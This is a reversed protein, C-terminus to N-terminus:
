LNVRGPKAPEPIVQLLTQTPPTGGAAKVTEDLALLLILGGGVIELARIWFGGSSIAKFFGTLTSFGPIQDYVATVGQSVLPGTPDFVTQWGTAQSAKLWNPNLVLQQREAQTTAGLSVFFSNPPLSGQLAYSHITAQQAPTFSMTGLSNTTVPEVGGQLYKLYAGSTYTQWPTWDSGNNSVKIAAVANALPSQMQSVTYEPHADPATNIQWLGAVYPGNTITPNGQSEALAIAAATPASASSGGAIIWLGELEAYNYQALPQYPHTPSFIAQWLSL